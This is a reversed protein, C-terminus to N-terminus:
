GHEKRLVRFAESQASITDGIEVDWEDWGNELDKATAPREILIGHKVAMEHLDGGDVDMWDHSSWSDFLEIVFANINMSHRSNSGGKTDM